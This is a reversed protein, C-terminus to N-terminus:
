NIRPFGHTSAVGAALSELVARLEPDAIGKLSMGLDVPVPRISPPAKRPVPAAVEGQRIAVKVIAAYGFFRNVREIIEPAIHQMMPAHAGRVTLTLVGDQKKGVPFRISEPISAGALKAGVIEPWRSVISSQVFGFRRFAAGGIAPLLEAVARSRNERPADPDTRGKIRKTAPKPTASKPVSVPPKSMQSGM